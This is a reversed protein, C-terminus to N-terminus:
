DIWEIVDEHHNYGDNGDGDHNNDYIGDNEQEARILHKSSRYNRIRDLSIMGDDDKLVEIAKEADYPDTSQSVYHRLQDATIKRPLRDESPSNPSLCVTDPFSHSSNGSVSVKFITGPTSTVPTVNPSTHLILYDELDDISICSKRRNLNLLGHHMIQEDEPKIGALIGNMMHNHLRNRSNRRSQYQRLTQLYSSSSIVTDSAADGSIWPHQLGETATMRNDIDHCLLSRIFSKCSASIFRPFSIRKRSNISKFIQVENEGSFPIKATVLIYCIVGISWCDGAKLDNGSRVSGMEPPVEM